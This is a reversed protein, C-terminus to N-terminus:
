GTHEGIPPSIHWGQVVKAEVIAAEEQEEGEEEEAKIKQEVEVQFNTANELGAALPDSSWKGPTGLFNLCLFSGVTKPWQMVIVTKTFSLLLSISSIKTRIWVM